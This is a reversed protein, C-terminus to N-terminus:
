PITLAPYMAPVGSTQVGFGRVEGPHQPAVALALSVLFFVVGIRYAHRTRQVMRWVDARGNAASTGDALFMCVHYARQVALILSGVCYDFSLNDGWPRFIIRVM